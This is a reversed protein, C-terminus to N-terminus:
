TGRWLSGPVTTEFQDSYVPRGDEAIRAGATELLRTDPDAGILAFIHDCDVHVTSTTGDHSIRLLAAAPQIEIVESSTLM